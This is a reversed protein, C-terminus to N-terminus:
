LSDFEEESFAFLKLLVGVIAENRAEISSETWKDIKALSTKKGKVSFQFNNLSLGNKYGINIKYGLFKKNEHLNQKDEFSANSLKSNYGSLTLNGLCHVWEEHIEEAANRDGDAIMDVWCKPINEGQPLIHEVTWVLLGKDNRAWLDPKYERSHSIEDLKSLVFRAMGSNYAFLNDELGEKLDDISSPKEKGNLFSKIIFKSNLKNGKKLYKHCKEIVDMNIADLDRTNPFDTINRRVYYKIFFKLVEDVTSERNEVDDSPLSCLYLM